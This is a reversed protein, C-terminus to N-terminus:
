LAEGDALPETLVSNVLSRGEVPGKPKPAQRWLPLPSLIHSLSLTTLPIQYRQISNGEKALM